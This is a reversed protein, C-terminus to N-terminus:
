RQPRHRPVGVPQMEGAVQRRQPQEARRQFIAQTPPPEPEEIRHSSEDSGAGHLGGPWTGDGGEAGAAPDKGDDGRIQHAERRRADKREEHGDEPDVDNFDRCHNAHRHPQHQLDCADIAVPNPGGM